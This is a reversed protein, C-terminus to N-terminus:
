SYFLGNLSRAKELNRKEEVGFLNTIYWFSQSLSIVLNERGLYKRERKGGVREVWKFLFYFHLFHEEKILAYITVLRFLLYVLHKELMLNWCQADTSVALKRSSRQKLYFETWLVMEIHLSLSGKRKRIFVVAHHNVTWGLTGFICM